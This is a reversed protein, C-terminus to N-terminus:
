RFYMISGHDIIQIIKNKRDIMINLAKIDRHIFGNDLFFLILGQAVQLGFNIIDLM